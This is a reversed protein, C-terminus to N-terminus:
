VAAQRVYSVERMHGLGALAEAEREARDLEHYEYRRYFISNGDSDTLTLNAWREPKIFLLLDYGGESVWQRQKFM